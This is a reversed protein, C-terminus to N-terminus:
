NSTSAVVHQKILPVVVSEFWKCNYGVHESHQSKYPEMSGAKLKKGKETLSWKGKDDKEGLGLALLAASVQGEKVGALPAIKRIGVPIEKVEAMPLLKTFDLGTARRADEVAIAKAMPADTGLLKSIQMNYKIIDHAQKHPIPQALTRKKTQLSPQAEGTELAEWRKQVKAHIVADFRSAVFLAQSKNLLIEPLTRGISDKYENLSFKGEIGYAQIYADEIIRIKKLTDNHPKGYLEAIERSSMYQPSTAIENM